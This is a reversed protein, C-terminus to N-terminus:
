FGIRARIGDRAAVAKALWVALSSAGAEGLLDARQKVQAFDGPTLGNIRDLEPPPKQGFTAMFMSRARKADLAEFEVQMTFRRASAPDLSTARNTTAIFCVVGREMQRLMENTMSMEWSRQAAERNALFSDAEDILLIANQREAEAFARAIAKETQGVYMGLLQAGSKCILDRGSREALHRAYASKGTGPPGSLLLSWKATSASLRDALPVLDTNARSLAPDFLTASVSSTGQDLRGAAEALDRAISVIGSVEEGLRSGTRVATAAIAPSTGLGALGTVLAQKQAAKLASCDRSRAVIREVMTRRVGASPLDFRIALDMRRLVPEGLIWAENIIWIHPGAGDEVLKNLWLKSARYEVGGIFLDEAEDIVLVSSKLNTALRRCLRLHSLRENRTPEGGEDDAEGVSVALVDNMGAILRAFETKGTGPVGYLLINARQGQKLGQGLLRAARDLDAAMHGFSALDLTSPALVPMLEALMAADTDTKSEFFRKVFDHLGLDLAGDLGDDAALGKIVLPGKESLGVYVADISLGSILAIAEANSVHSIKGLKHLLRQWNRYISRRALVGLLACDAADLALSRALFGIRRDLASTGESCAIPWDKRLQEIAKRRQAISLDGFCTPIASVVPMPVRLERAAMHMISWLSSLDDGSWRQDIAADFLRKLAALLYGREVAGDVGDGFEGFTVTHRTHTQSHRGRRSHASPFM